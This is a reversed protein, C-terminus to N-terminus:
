PQPLASAFGFGKGSADVMRLLFEWNPEPSGTDAPAQCVKVLVTNVGLRLPVKFRHRDLRVGNRYEEFAFVRKGNVWVSLNDDAGGRFEAEVAAAARFATYAYAVADDASGLEKALNILGIRDQPQYTIRKWRINGRKGAYAAALDIKEEPPYVTAFGKMEHADFPGLVYWDRFFGLHALVDVDTGLEKLKREIAKVQEVDRAAAFAQRYRQRVTEPDKLKATAALLQEVSEYRFEPDNLWGPLRRETTGPVATEVLELALRRARGQHKSDQIFQLLQEVPLPKGKSKQEAAIADVATLLWNVIVTDPTDMAAFIAPLAAPGQAVLQDWAKRAAISGAGQPGVARISNLLAQLRPSNVDDAALHAATILLLASVLLTMTQKWRLM